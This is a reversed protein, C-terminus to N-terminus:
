VNWIDSLGLEEGFTDPMEDFMWWWSLVMQCFAWKRVVSEGLDLAEGFDTIARDLKGELRTDWDLWDHHNNLFVGIDYGVHGIIGKPDIMLFPERTATLINDHHLDGHLLVINKSDKSLEDCYTLAREAYDQPFATGKARKLGDFWDDLRIFENPVAPVPRLIRKLMRIAIAVAEAQNKKCVSKLNAGPVARELLAAQRERDFEFLKAAGQGDMTRLYGAEGFIEVDTLPLGIKLVASSGDALLANAVYNFSLNRFHKGATISWSKELASIISPLDDLWKEGREGCLSITNEVFKQPLTARFEKNM